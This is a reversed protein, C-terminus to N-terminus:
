KRMEALDRYNILKIGLSEIHQRTKPDSFLQYEWVRRQWSGTIGKLEESEMAPHIYTETVGEPFARYMEYIYERYNEFSDKQPGNWDGPILYDPMAIGKGKAYATFKDFLSMILQPDVKIGLTENEFSAKDIHGPFRFPLKYDATIDFIQNLLELRGTEIGYLSGMHNDLHSPNLGWDTLRKIQAHIEAEVEDIDANIEFQDSEHWMFGEEDCLTEAPTLPRWRYTGWESTTTLHVGIAYQPNQVAFKTAEFAWPCPAM